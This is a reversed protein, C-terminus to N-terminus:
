SASIKHDGQAPGFGRTAINAVLVVPLMLVAIPVILIMWVVFAGVWSPLGAREAIWEGAETVVHPHTL